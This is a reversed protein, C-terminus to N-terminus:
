GRPQQNAEAADPRDRDAVVLQRVGREDLGLDLCPEVRCGDLSQEPDLAIAQAAHGFRLRCPPSGLDDHRGDRCALPGVLDEPGVEGIPHADEGLLGDEPHVVELLRLGPGGGDDFAQLHLQGRGAQVAAELMWRRHAEQVDGAVRPQGLLPAVLRRSVEGLLETPEHLPCRDLVAAPRDLPEAIPHHEEERVGSWAHYGGELHRLAHGLGPQRRGM